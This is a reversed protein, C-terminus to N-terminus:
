RRCGAQRCDPPPVCVIQRGYNHAETGAPCATSSREQALAPLTLVFALLLYRM